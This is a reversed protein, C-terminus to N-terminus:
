RLLVDDIKLGDRFGFVSLRYFPSLGFQRINQFYGSLNNMLTRVVPHNEQPETELVANLEGSSTGARLVLFPQVGRIILTKYREYKEQDEQLIFILRLNVIDGCDPLIRIAAMEMMRQEWENPLSAGPPELRRWLNLPRDREIYDTAVRVLNTKSLNAYRLLEERERIIFKRFAFDEPFVPIYEDQYYRFLETIRSLAGDVEVQLQKVIKFFDELLKKAVKRKGTDSLIRWKGRLLRELNMIQNELRQRNVHSAFATLGFALLPLGVMLAIRGALAIPFSFVGASSAVALTFARGYLAERRPGRENLQQITSICPAPDDYQPLEVKHALLGELHKELELLFKKALKIGGMEQGIMTELHDELSEKWEQFRKEGIKWMTEENENSIRPLSADLANMTEIYDEPSMTFFDPLHSLPDKLSFGGIESVNKKVEEIELLHNKQLFNNLYFSCYTLAQETLLSEKMVQAGKFLAVAELIQNVPLILSFASFGSVLGEEETKVLWDHFQDTSETTLPYTSLFYLLHGILCNQDKPDSILVGQPNSIDILFIRHFSPLSERGCIKNLVDSVAVGGQGQPRRCTFIATWYVLLNPAIIKEIEDKISKCGNVIKECINEECLDAIVIIQNVSDFISFGKLTIQEMRKAEFAGKVCAEVESQMGRKQEILIWPYYPSIEEPIPFFEEVVDKVGFMGSSVLLFFTRSVKKPHSFTKEATCQHIKQRLEAFM